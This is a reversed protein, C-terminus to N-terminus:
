LSALIAFVGVFITWGVMFRFWLQRGRRQEEIQTRAPESLGESSPVSRLNRYALLAFVLSSIVLLWPGILSSSM